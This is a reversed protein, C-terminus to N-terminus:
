IVVREDEFYDRSEQLYNHKKVEEKNYMFFISDCQYGVEVSVQPNNDGMLRMSEWLSRDLPFNEVDKTYQDWREQQFEDYNNFKGSNDLVWEEMLSDDNKDRWWEFHQNWLIRSTLLKHRYGKYINQLIVDGDKCYFYFGVARTFEYILDNECENDGLFHFIMHLLKEPNDVQKLEIIGSDEILKITGKKLDLKIHKQRETMFEIEYDTIDDYLSYRTSVKTESKAVRRSYLRNKNRM